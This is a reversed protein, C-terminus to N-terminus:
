RSDLTSRQNGKWAAQNRRVLGIPMLADVESARWCAVAHDGRDAALPPEAERCKAIAIPCRTHFRCGAPPEIPSPVDGELVIRRRRREAIPDPLPVASMLARTYPHRPMEFLSRKDGIEV